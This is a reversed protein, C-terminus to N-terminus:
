NAYLHTNGKVFQVSLTSFSLFCVGNHKGLLDLANGGHSGTSEELCLGELNNLLSKHNLSM